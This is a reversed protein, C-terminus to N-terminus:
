PNYLAAVYLLQTASLIISFAEMTVLRANRFQLEIEKCGFRTLVTLKPSNLEVESILSLHIVWGMALVTLTWALVASTVAAPLSEPAQSRIHNFGSICSAAGLVGALLAFMVFFGTAANGMPFFIPAFHAPLHLGPGIVFGHDIARNMAWGGIGLIVVYMCFNLALLLSAAISFAEMTVLRANRFELEIEKCAFGMALVTLTWALIAFTVVSPLSEPARSSQLHYFGSICSAAGFVGALLAFMVFFGTAANGMPFYIPSFHAPLQFGADIVFGHDIARNMAWGGIGLLVVYMCFNLVLLLSAAPKMSGNAMKHVRFHCSLSCNEERRWKLQDEQDGWSHCGHVFANNWEPYHHVGGINKHTHLRIHKSAFGLALITLSWAIAAAAAAAPLSEPGWSKVHNLGFLCSVAGVAGAILSFIIFYPTAANQGAGVSGYNIIRNMAWGCIGLVVVYMCFNLFLLFSAAPRLQGNAMKIKVAGHITLIYLLMTGSLIIIMAEVTKLKANNTHLRIHKSAFGLALVTLSWAMSASASAAPLSHPGWSNIHHLGFSCAATGVTGALLSFLVFYPTASNEGKGIGHDIIRNMAWASIGLVVVYMYFNLQLLCMAGLRLTAM